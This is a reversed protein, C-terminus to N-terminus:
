QLFSRIKKKTKAFFFSIHDFFFGLSSIAVSLLSLFHRFFFLFRWNTELPTERCLLRNSFFVRLPPVPPPLKSVRPSLPPLTERTTSTRGWFFTINRERGRFRQVLFSMTPKNDFFSWFLILSSSFFFFSAFNKNYLYIFQLNSSIKKNVM